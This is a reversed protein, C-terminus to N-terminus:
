IGMGLKKRSKQSIISSRNQEMGIKNILHYFFERDMGKVVAQEHAEALAVPYGMGKKTQDAIINCLLDVKEEHKAIWAPIEIRVIEDGINMYFFHPHVEKPYYKTIKSYNKFIITRTFPRLYFSAIQSDVIHDVQKYRECGEVVYDCLAVRILNLLEKSKPLSIYGAILIQDDYFNKLSQLYSSLFRQKAELSKSELHWFILSGDFLFVSPVNPLIGSKCINFGKIFELEQRKCNVLEQPSELLEYEQYDVFVHPESNFEVRKGPLGYQLKVSGTNILHCM